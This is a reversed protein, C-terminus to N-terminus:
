TGKKTRPFSMLLIKELILKVYLVTLNLGPTKLIGKNPQFNGALLTSDISNFYDEEWFASNLLEIENFVVRLFKYM